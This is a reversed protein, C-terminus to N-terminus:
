NYETAIEDKNACIIIRIPENDYKDNVELNYYNLYM